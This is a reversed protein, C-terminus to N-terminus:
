WWRTYAISRTQPWIRWKSRMRSLWRRTSALRGPALRNATWRAAAAYRSCMSTWKSNWIASATSPSARNRSWSLLATPHRNALRQVCWFHQLCYNAMIPPSGRLKTYVCRHLINGLILIANLHIAARFTMVGCISWTRRGPARNCCKEAVFLLFNSEVVFYVVFVKATIIYWYYPPEILLLFSWFLIWTPEIKNVERGSSVIGKVHQWFWNTM